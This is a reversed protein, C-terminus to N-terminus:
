KKEQVEFRYGIRRITRLRAPSAPNDEIAKRVWHIHVELTRLDGLYDTGWVQKMLFARSLIEGPHRMFIELLHAQKPTLQTERGGCVVSCQKCNLTVDGVRLVEDDPIPLLRAIRNLLTKASFPHRLYGRAGLSRDIEAGEPLLMLVPIEPVADRLAECFRRIDFRLSPSDLVIVVPSM